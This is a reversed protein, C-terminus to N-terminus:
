VKCVGDLTSVYYELLRDTERNEVVLSDIKAQLEIIRNENEDNAVPQSPQIIPKQQYGFKRAREEPDMRKCNTAALLLTM